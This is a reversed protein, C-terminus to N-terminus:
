LTKAVYKEVEHKWVEYGAHNLHLGDFQLEPNLDGDKLFLSYLDLYRYHFEQSLQHLFLDFQAIDVNKVKAAYSCSESIPLISEIFVETKPSKNKFLTLIQRYNNRIDEKRTGRIFDNIGIMLFVQKPHSNLIPALRTLVGCTSDGPIGRNIVNVNVQHLNEPWNGFDTLSDGLFVIEDSQPQIFTAEKGQYYTDQREQCSDYAVETELRSRFITRKLGYIFGLSLAIVNILISFFILLKSPKM